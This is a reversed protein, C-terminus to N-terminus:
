PKKAQAWHRWPGIVGKYSIFSGMSTILQIMAEPAPQRQHQGQGKARLGSSGMSGKKIEGGEQVDPQQVRCSCSHKETALGSDQLIRGDEGLSSSLLVEAALCPSWSLNLLALHNGFVNSLSNILPPHSVASAETTDHLRVASNRRFVVHTGHVICARTGCLVLSSQRFCGFESDLGGGM